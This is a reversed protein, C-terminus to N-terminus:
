NFESLCIDTPCLCVVLEFFCGFNYREVGNPMLYRYLDLPKIGSTGHHKILTIIEVLTWVPVRLTASCGRWVPPPDPVTLFKQRIPFRVPFSFSFLCFWLNVHALLNYYNLPKYHIM